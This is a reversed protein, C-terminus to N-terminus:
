LTQLARRVVSWPWRGPGGGWSGVYASPLSPRSGSRREPDGRLAHYAPALGHRQLHEAGAGRYLWLEDCAEVRRGGDLRRRIAVFVRGGHRVRREIWGVQEPRMRVAFGRRVSKHEVWVEIGGLARPFCYNSDPVGQTTLGTEVTLVDVPPPIHKRFLGRLGDDVSM